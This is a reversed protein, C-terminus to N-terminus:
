GNNNASGEAHSTGVLFKLIRRLRDPHLVVPADVVVSKVNAPLPAVNRIDLVAGAASDMVALADGGGIM